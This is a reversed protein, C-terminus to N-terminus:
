SLSVSKKGSFALLIALARNRASAFPMWPKPYLRLSIFATSYSSSGVVPRSVGDKRPLVPILANTIGPLLVGTVSRGPPGLASLSSGSSSRFNTFCSTFGKPITLKTTSLPVAGGGALSLSTLMFPLNTVTRSGGGGPGFPVANVTVTAGPAPSSRRSRVFTTTPSTTEPKSTRCFIPAYQV